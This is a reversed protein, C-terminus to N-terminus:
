WGKTAIWHSNGRFGKPNQCPDLWGSSGLFANDGHVEIVKKALHFAQIYGLAIKSSPLDNWVQNAAAWIEDEKL